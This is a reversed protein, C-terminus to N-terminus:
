RAEVGLCGPYTTGVRIHMLAVQRSRKCSHWQDCQQGFRVFSRLALHQCQASVTSRTCCDLALQQPLVGGVIECCAVSGKLGCYASQVGLWVSGYIDDLM